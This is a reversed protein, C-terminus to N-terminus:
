FIYKKHKNSTESLVILDTTTKNNSFNLKPYNSKHWVLIIVKDLNNSFYSISHREKLVYDCNIPIKLNPQCM